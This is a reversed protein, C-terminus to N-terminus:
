FIANIGMQAIKGPRIDNGLYYEAWDYELEVAINTLNDDSYQLQTPTIKSIMPNYVRWTDVINGDPDLTKINISGFDNVLNKKSLNRYMEPIVDTPYTYSNSLVKNMLIGMVSSLANPDWTEIVTFSIPQWKLKKPFKINYTLLERDVYEIMFSPRKVDKIFAINIGSVELIFRFSQQASNFAFQPNLPANIYNQFLNSATKTVQAKSTSLGFLGAM